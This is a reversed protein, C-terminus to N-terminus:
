LAKIYIYNLEHELLENGDKCDPFFDMKMGTLYRELYPYEGKRIGVM